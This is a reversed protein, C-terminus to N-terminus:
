EVRVADIYFEGTSFWIVIGHVKALDPSVCGLNTLDIEVTTETNGDAWGWPSQCWTWNDGLQLAVSTSTGSGLTKLDYKLKTRGTLDAAPDLSGAFWANKSNVQLAFNGDTHFFNSQATTGPDTQWNAGAWGETGTEFSFLILPAQPNPKVTVLLNAMNSLKGTDDQITYAAQTKGAFGTDPTFLVTGDPQLAFVGGYVTMSAQQGGTAPDLDISAPLIVAAGYTIDNAAPVLSVPTEFETVATDDDAVPPFVMAQNASMMKAFNSITICVPSPCYVTFGDYDAYYSGDDMKGSLIWYLAGAGGSNFVADTWDKFVPNRTSKGLWGYEGLMAPKDIAKADAFHRQIWQTGWPATKGWSDPYLHFSMVDINELSAFALTDVGEGCNETWDSAGPICYFGEDGVSVLHKPDITKIYTSMEDAWAILTQTSCSGSRPYTGSGVCRPENALEWTMITPDNKYKIGTYTNTRNLLHTIWGKFWARIQADTYFQDHYSGGMWHIYQDMGGFASWNNVFPIVLKIGLQGARYIVYDLHMLGDAGDNYAPKTGDWFQFYVGDAKGQLSNSGDQNGIELSGWMRLVKFGHAAATQLVDDVMFQSKYMLYYNNTGAFRFLKGNLRLDPGTQKVFQNGQSGALATRTLAPQALLILLLILSGAIHIPRKFM